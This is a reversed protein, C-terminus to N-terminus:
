FDYRIGVQLEDDEGDIQNFLYGAYTRLNKNFKYIGELVFYDVDDTKVGAEESQKFNYAAQAIFKDMKFATALEYGTLDTNGKEGSAYTAGAYFNNFEYSAALNYQNADVDTGDQGNVYGAGLSLGFPFAYQAAIGYSDSDKEADNNEAIYNAAVTFNNFEGAYLFNNERKDKNGDVLDVGDGGFTALIDTYDTLMVQASDQKGYSFAGAQTDFGAYVYRSKVTSDSSDSIEAEYKGFATVDDTIKAKGKLNIRARSKDKFANGTGDDGKNADSINFRAEARGGISLSKSDDEYVTAANATGTVLSALIASALVAKKM